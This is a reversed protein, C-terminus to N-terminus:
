PDSDAEPDPAGGGELVADRKRELERVRDRLQAAAAFDERGVAEKIQGRLGSIRAELQRAARVRPPVKGVHRAEAQVQALLGPLHPSFAEYCHACGFKMSERFARYSLGCRPCTAEGASAPEPESKSPKVPAGAEQASGIGILGFSLANACERCAYFRTLEGNEVQTVRSRAPRSKCFDCMMIQPM